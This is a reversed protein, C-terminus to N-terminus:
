RPQNQNLSAQVNMEGYGYYVNYDGDGLQDCAGLILDGIQDNNLDPNASRLLAALGAVHPSAMSTGSLVAYQNDKYTSPINEGPAALDVHDGFNSFFSRNRDQDVAAVTIVEPYVAPYMPEESNDNGSASVIVVDHKDAYQIAEYLLDSHYYDGLSMNIVDAGHDVAWYIGRAVSYSSGEGNEDLVKIPMIKSQWSVGAVGDINNTVAAAIGAVHSGHGNTDKYDSSDDIANYGETLKGKLDPHNPDVGTDIIAITTDTGNAFNWGDDAHIQKLNWQYPKFYEDNPEVKKEVTRVQNSFAYNPEAFLVTEDQQLDEILRQLEKNGDKVIYFPHNDALLEYGKKQAWENGNIQPPLKVVAQNEHFSQIAVNDDSKVYINWGLGPVTQAELEDPLEDISSFQVNPDSGNVFFTGSSDAIAATKALYSQIFSLDIEGIIRQGDDKDKGMLMFTNGNKNYPNSYHMGNDQHILLSTDITSLTGAALLPSGGKDLVSFGSIYPHENLEQQFEDTLSEGQTNAWKELQGSLSSIFLTTTKALDEAMLRDKSTSHVRSKPQHSDFVATHPQSQEVQSTFVMGAIALAALAIGWIAPKKM